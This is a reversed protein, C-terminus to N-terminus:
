FSKALSFRIASTELDGKITNSNGVVSNGTSTISFGDFDTEEYIMKWLLGGATNGKLGVGLNTGSVDIEKQYAGGSAAGTTIYSYDIDMSSLGARVYLYKYIPAELYVTNFNKATAKATRTVTADTEIGNNTTSGETDTRSSNAIDAEGPTYEFGFTLPYSSETTYEAFLSGTLTQDSVSKTRISTDAVNAGAATLKDTESGSAGVDLLSTTVGLSVTGAWASTSLGVIAIVAILMNRLKIM